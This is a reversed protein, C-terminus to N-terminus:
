KGLFKSRVQERADKWDHVQGHEIQDEARDIADLTANDLSHSELENLAELAAHVVEDAPQYEGSRLKAELLQQTEPRLSITMKNESRCEVVGKHEAKLVGAIPRHTKKLCPPISQTITADALGM